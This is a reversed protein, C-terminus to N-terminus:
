DPAAATPHSEAYSLTFCMTKQLKQTPMSGHVIQCYIAGSGYASMFSNTCLAESTPPRAPDTFFEEHNHSSERKAGLYNEANIIKKAVTM